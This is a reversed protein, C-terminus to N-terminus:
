QEDQVESRTFNQLFDGLVELDFCEEDELLEQEAATEVPLHVAHVQRGHVLVLGLAGLVGTGDGVHLDDAIHQEGDTRIPIQLNPVECLRSQDDGLRQTHVVM